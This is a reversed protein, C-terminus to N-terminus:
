WTTLVADYMRQPPLWDGGQRQYALSTAPFIDHANECQPLGVANFLRSMSMSVHLIKELCAM